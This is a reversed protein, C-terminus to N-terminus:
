GINLLKYKVWSTIKRCAEVKAMEEADPNEPDALYENADEDFYTPYSVRYISAAVNEISGYYDLIVPYVYQRAMEELAMHVTEEEDTDHGHRAAYDVCLNDLVESPLDFKKAIDQPGSEYYYERSFGSMFEAYLDTLAIFRLMVSNREVENKYYALGENVLKRWVTEIWSDQQDYIPSIKEWSIVKTVDSLEVVEDLFLEFLVELKPIQDKLQHDSDLLHLETKHESAYRISNDVPVVDDRLGHIIVTKKACPAPNQIKYGPLNFAPAMLFLGVPKILQSAVTAVYGGMSSGVLITQDSEPMRINLLQEVRADPDSLKRYDPSEVIFGKLRAVQALAEIKVGWPGSEKGHAFYINM